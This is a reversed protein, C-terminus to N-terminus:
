ARLTCKVSIFASSSFRKFTGLILPVLTGIVGDRKLFIMCDTNVLKMGPYDGNVNTCWVQCLFPVIEPFLVSM